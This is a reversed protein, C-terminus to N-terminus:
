LVHKSKQQVKHISLVMIRLHFFAIKLKLTSTRTDLRFIFNVGRDYLHPSGFITSIGNQHFFELNISHKCEFLHQKQSKINFM